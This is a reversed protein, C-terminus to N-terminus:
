RNEMENAITMLTDAMRDLFDTESNKLVLNLSGHRTRFSLHTKEKEIVYLIKMSKIEIEKVERPETM